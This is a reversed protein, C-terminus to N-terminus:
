EEKEGYWTSIIRKHYIYRSSSLGDLHRVPQCAFGADDLADLLDELQVSLDTRGHLDIYVQSMHMVECDDACIAPGDTVVTYAAYKDPLATEEMREYRNLFGTIGAADFVTMMRQYITM